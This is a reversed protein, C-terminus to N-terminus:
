DQKDYNSIIYHDSPLARVPYFRLERPQSCGVYTRPLSTDGRTYLPAVHLIIDCSIKGSARYATLVAGQKM